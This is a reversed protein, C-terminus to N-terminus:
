EISTELFVTNNPYFKSLSTAVAFEGPRAGEEVEGPHRRRRTRKASQMSMEWKSGKACSVVLIVMSFLRYARPVMTVLVAIETFIETDAQLPGIPRM